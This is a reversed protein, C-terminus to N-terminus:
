GGHRWLRWAALLLGTWAVAALPWGIIILTAPHTLLLGLDAPAVAALAM